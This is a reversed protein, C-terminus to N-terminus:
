FDCFVIRRVVIGLLVFGYGGGGLGVRNKSGIDIVGCVYIDIVLIIFCFM